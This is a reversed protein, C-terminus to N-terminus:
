DQHPRRERHGRQGGANRARGRRHRDLSGYALFALAGAYLFLMLSMDARCSERGEELFFNPNINRVSPFCGDNIYDTNGNLTPTCIIRRSIFGLRSFVYYDWKEFWIQSFRLFSVAIYFLINSISGHLFTFPSSFLSVPNSPDPVHINDRFFTTESFEDTHGSSVSGSAFVGWCQSPDGFYGRVLKSTIFTLLLTLLVVLVELTRGRIDVALLRKIDTAIGGAIIGTALFNMPLFTLMFDYVLPEKLVGPVALVGGVSYVVVSWWFRAPKYCVHKHVIHWSVNQCQRSCYYSRLCRVCKWRARRRCLSCAWRRRSVGRKKLTRRGRCYLAVLPSFFVPVLPRLYKRRVIAAGLQWWPHPRRLAALVHPPMAALWDDEFMINGPEEGNNNNNNNHFPDNPHTPRSPPPPLTYEAGCTECHLGNKAAPHRSRCRWQEICLYHVFAMSGACKCPALLPNEASPHHLVLPPLNALPSPQVKTLSSTKNELVTSSLQQDDGSSTATASNSSIAAITSEATVAGEDRDGSAGGAFEPTEVGASSDTGRRRADVTHSSLDEDAKNQPAASTATELDYNVDHLGERCIRCFVPEGHKLSGLLSEELMSSDEASAAIGCDMGLGDDYRPLLKMALSSPYPVNTEQCLLLPANATHKEATSASKSLTELDGVVEAEGSANKGFDFNVDDNGVGDSRTDGEGRDEEVKGLAVFGGFGGHEGPWRLRLWYRRFAVLVQDVLVVEAHRVRRVPPLRRQRQHRLKRHHRHQQGQLNQLQRQQRRQQLEHQSQNSNNSDNNFTNTDDNDHNSDIEDELSSNSNSFTSNDLARATVFRRQRIVQMELQREQVQQQEHQQLLPEGQLDSDDQAELRGRGERAVHVDNPEGRDHVGGAADNADNGDHGRADDWDDGGSGFRRDNAPGSVGGGEERPTAVASAAAAVAAAATATSADATGAVSALAVREAERPKVPDVDGDDDNDSESEGGLPFPRAYVQVGHRWPEKSGTGPQCQYIPM